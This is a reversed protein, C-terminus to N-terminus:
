TIVVGGEQALSDSSSQQQCLKPETSYYKDSWSLFRSLGTELNISPQYDLHFWSKSLVEKM